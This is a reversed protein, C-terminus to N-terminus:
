PLLLRNSVFSSLLSFGTLKVAKQLSVLCFPTRIQRAGSERKLKSSLGSLCNVKIICIHWTLLYIFSYFYFVCTVIVIFFGM